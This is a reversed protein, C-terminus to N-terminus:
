FVGSLELAVVAAYVVLAAALVRVSIKAFPLTSVMLASMVLLVASLLVADFRFVLTLMLLLQSYFVPMGAYFLKGDEDGFGILTFRVLRFVGAGAFIVLVWVPLAYVAAWYLAPFLLYNLVDACSDLWSGLKSSVGAKRAIPGDLMDLVLAALLLVFPLSREGRLLVLCALAACLLGLLTIGNVVLKISVRSSNSVVARM